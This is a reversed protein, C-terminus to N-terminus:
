PEWLAGREIQQAGNSLQKFLQDARLGQSLESAALILRAQERVYIRLSTLLAEEKSGTMLPLLRHIVNMYADELTRHIRYNNQHIMSHGFTPITINCPGYPARTM